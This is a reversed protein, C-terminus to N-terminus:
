HAEAKRTSSTTAPTSATVPAASTTCATAPLVVVTPPAAAAPTTPCSKRAAEICVTAVRRELAARHSDRHCALSRFGYGFGAVTGLSLLIILLKRRIM